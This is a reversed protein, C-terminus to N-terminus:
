VGGGEPTEAPDPDFEPPPPSSLVIGGCFRVVPYAWYWYLRGCRAPEDVVPDEGDAASLLPEVGELEPMLGPKCVVDPVSQGTFPLKM